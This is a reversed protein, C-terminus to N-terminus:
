SNHSDFDFSSKGYRYSLLLQRRKRPMELILWLSYMSALASIAFILWRIYIHLLPSVPFLVGRFLANALGSINFLLHIVLAAFDESRRSRELEAANFKHWIPFDYDRQSTLMQQYLLIQTMVQQHHVVLLNLVLSIYSIGVSAFAFNPDALSVGFLTTAVTIFTLFARSRVQLRANYEDSTSKYLDSATLSM